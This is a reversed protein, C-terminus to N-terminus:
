CSLFAKSYNLISILTRVNLIDKEILHKAMGTENELVNILHEQHLHTSISILQLWKQTVDNNPAESNIIICKTNRDLTAWKKQLAIKLGIDMITSPIDLSKSKLDNISLAIPHSRLLTLFHIEPSGKESYNLGEETLYWYTFEHPGEMTLKQQSFLSNILGVVYDHDYSVIEALHISTITCTPEKTEFIKLIQFMDNEKNGMGSGHLLALQSSGEM